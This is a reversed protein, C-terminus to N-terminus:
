IVSPDHRYCRSCIGGGPRRAVIQVRTAGCRGCTGNQRSRADCPGCIRGEERLQRLDTLIVGCRACGPRVVPHGAEHLVHALRLLVPPCLSSGSTLADPHAAMHAALEELFRAPGKVTIPVATELAATADEAGIAPLATTVQIVAADMAAELRAAQRALRAATSPATM